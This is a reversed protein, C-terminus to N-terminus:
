EGEQCVGMILVDRYGGSKFAHRRLRGEVRFGCKEYVRVAPLNDALVFLYLRRLGLSAFAYDILLRVAATGVGKGRHEVGGIFIHLEAHRAVWDIDRLYINGVHKAGPNLCIALNIEQHSFAQKKHLWEEVGARSVYRFSGILSDYLSADNHWALIRDLDERELSRLYIQDM